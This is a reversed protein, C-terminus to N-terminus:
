YRFSTFHIIAMPESLDYGKFWAKFDKLSLGDNKAIEELNIDSDYDDIFIGLHPDFEIKQIGVDSKYLDLFTIQKSNYPKDSWYRLSLMAKGETVEDIRKKWFDYNARITHIKEELFIDEPFGTFQGARPHTKPFVKSVTLVYTKM